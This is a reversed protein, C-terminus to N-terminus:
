VGIWDEHLSLTRLQLTLTAEPYEDVKYDVRHWYFGGLQELSQLLRVADFYRGKLSMEFGHQYILAEADSRGKFESDVRALELAQVPLNRADILRMGDFDALLEALATSMQEPSMLQAFTRNIYAQQEAVQKRLAEREEKLARNPDNQKANKLGSLEAKTSIMESNFHRESQELLSQKHEWPLYIAQLWIFLITVAIVLSLIIRERVSLANIWDALAKHKSTM